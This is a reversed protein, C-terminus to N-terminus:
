PAVQDIVLDRVGDRGVDYTLEGFLDGSAPTPQGSFSVRATISVRQGSALAHGPMMSDAASLEIRTGIAADTLRKAALPPGRSGPERAFVFLPTGARLRAKLAPAITLNVTATAAPDPPRAASDASRDGAIAPAGAMADSAGAPVSALEALRADLMEVIQAPPHMARLTEWRTRALAVDGQVAASFGGFLLARPNRPEQALAQEFLQAAQATVEGGAKMSIAEGLGLAAEVNKGGDLQHANDFAVIAEDIRGTAEYSRGLMLWGELDGPQQALHKELKAVMAAVDPSVAHGTATANWDWTSWLPYLGSALGVLVVASVVGAIRSGRDRLLPVAVAAAALAAMVAAAVIFALM